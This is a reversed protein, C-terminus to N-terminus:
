YFEPLDLPNHQAEAAQAQQDAQMQALTHPAAAPPPPPGAAPPLVPPAVAIAMPFLPGLPAPPAVALGNTLYRIALGVGAATSAGAAATLLSPGAAVVVLGGIGVSIAAPILVGRVDVAFPPPAPVVALAGAGGGAGVAPAAGGAPAAGAAGGAAPPVPAYGLNM